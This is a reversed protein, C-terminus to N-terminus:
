RTTTWSSTSINSPTLIRTERVISTGNVMAGAQVLVDDILLAHCSSVLLDRVPVAAALAGAKIRIPAQRLPDALIAHRDVRKRGIWRVARLTRADRDVTVVLDGVELAEVAVQGAEAEIMTGPLFCAVGLLFDQGFGQGAADMTVDLKVTVVGTSGGVSGLDLAQDTFYAAADSLSTFTVDIADAVGTVMFTLSSFGTAGVDDDLLGLVLDGSLGSTDVNFVLSSVYEQTGGAGDVYAAGQVGAGFVVASPDSFATAVNPHAALDSTIIAPDRRSRARPTTTPLDSTMSPRRRRRPERGHRRGSTAPAEANATLSTVFGDGGTAAVSQALGSSGTADAFAHAQQGNSATASATADAPGAGTSTAIATANASAGAGASGTGNAHGGAGAHGYAGAFVGYAGSANAAASAAGGAGGNAAGGSSGGAGGDAYARLYEFGTPSAITLSSTAAGGAGGVAASSSGGVGGSATQYLRIEGNSRSLSASVADTLSSGAGAGGGAGGAGHGGAGGTQTLKAVVLTGFGTATAGSAVGGDGGANGAGYGQGGAGGAVFVYVDGDGFLSSAGAM